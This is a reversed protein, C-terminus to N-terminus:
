MRAIKQKIEYTSPYQQYQQGQPQQLSQWNQQMTNVMQPSAWTPYNQINQPYPFYSNSMGGNGWPMPKTQWNPAQGPYKGMDPLMQDPQGVPMSWLQQEAAQGAMGIASTQGAGPAMGQLAGLQNGISQGVGQPFGAGNGVQNGLMQGVQQPYNGPGGVQNGITQGMNPRQGPMPRGGPGTLQGKANRYVGPSLRELKPKPDRGLAGAIRQGMQGQLPQRRM